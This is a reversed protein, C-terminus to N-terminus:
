AAARFGVEAANINALTWAASTNPNTDWQHRYPAVTTTLLVATAPYDTGGSRVTPEIRTVPSSAQQNARYNLILAKISDGGVLASVAASTATFLGGVTDETIFTSDDDSASNINTIAGTWNNTAGFASLPRTVVRSGITSEDSFLLESYVMQRTATASTTNRGIKLGNVTSGGSIVTNGSFSYILVRNHYIRIFGTSAHIKFWIDVKVAGLSTSVANAFVNDTSNVHNRWAYTHTGGVGSQATVRLSLLNVATNLRLTLIDTNLVQDTSLTTPFGIVVSFWGESLGSVPTIDSVTTTNTLTFGVRSNAARVRGATSNIGMGTFVGLEPADQPETFAMIVGM